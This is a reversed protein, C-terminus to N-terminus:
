NSILVSVPWWIRIKLCHRTAHNSISQSTDVRTWDIYGVRTAIIPNRPRSCQRKRLPTVRMSIRNRIGRAGDPHTLKVEKLLADAVQDFQKRQCSSPRTLGRASVLVPLMGDIHKQTSSPSYPM